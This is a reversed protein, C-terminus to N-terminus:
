FGNMKPKLAMSWVKFQKAFFGSRKFLVRNGICNLYFARPCEFQEQSFKAITDKTLYDHDAQYYTLM